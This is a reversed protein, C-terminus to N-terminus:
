GLRWIAWLLLPPTAAHFLSLLRIFLPVNPDFMYKGVDCFFLSNQLGYQTWYFPVWAIV